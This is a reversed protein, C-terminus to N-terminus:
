AHGSRGVGHRTTNSPVNDAVLVERTARGLGRGEQPPHRSEGRHHLGGLSDFGRRRRKGVLLLKAYVRQVNRVNNM